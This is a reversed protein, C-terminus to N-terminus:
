LGYEPPYMEQWEQLTTKYYEAKAKRVEEGFHLQYVVRYTLKEGNVTYSNYELILRDNKYYLVKRPSKKASAGIFISGSTADYEWEMQTHIPRLLSGIVITTTCCTWCSGDAYFLFHVPTTGDWYLLPKWGHEHYHMMGDVVEVYSSTLADVLQVPDMKAIDFGAIIDDFPASPEESKDCAAFSLVAALILIYKKM